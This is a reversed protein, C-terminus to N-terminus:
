GALRLRRPIRGHEWLWVLDRQVSRKSVPAVGESVEATLAVDTIGPNAIYIQAVRDRRQQQSLRRRHAKSGAAPAARRRAPRSATAAPPRAQRQNDAPVPATTAAVDHTATAPQSDSDRTTGPQLVVGAVAIDGQGEIAPQGGARVQEVRANHVTTRVVGRFERIQRWTPVGLTAREIARLKWLQLFTPAGAARAARASNRIEIGALLAIPLSARAVRLRWTEGPAALYQFWMSAGTFTIMLVWAWVVRVLKRERLARGADYSVYITIGDWALPYLWAIERPTNILLAFEYLREYSLTYTGLVIITLWLEDPMLERAWSRMRGLLTKTAGRQARRPSSAELQLAAPPQSTEMPSRVPPPSDLATVAPTDTDHDRAMDRPETSTDDAPQRANHCLNQRV